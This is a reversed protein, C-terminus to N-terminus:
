EDEKRRWGHRRLVHTRVRHCNACVLDCKAIEADIAARSMVSRTMAGVNHLKVEGPRHDFDMAVSPFRGGCDSCPADKQAAIYDQNAQRARLTIASACVRCQRKGNSRRGVGVHGQPCPADDPKISM